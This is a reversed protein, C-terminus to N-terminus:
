YVELTEILEWPGWQTAVPSQNRTWFRARFVQNNYVVTDGNEFVRSNTWTYAHAGGIYVLEGIEMWAGWPGSNAPSQSQVWWQAEFIRGDYIVRDGNNFVTAADWVPYAPAVPEEISAENFNAIIRINASTLNQVHLHTRAATEDHLVIGGAEVTWHSFVHGEPVDAQIVVTQGIYGRFSSYNPNGIHGWGYGGVLEITIPEFNAVIRINASTLDQVHFHTRPASVNNLAVGGAEVTWGTFLYGQPVDAQIVVTQGIYGPFSAYNPNGFHGWGYGGDLEITIAEFNAAIVVAEAGMHFHTRTATANALTIDGELVTWGTFLYGRPVNAEIVVTQGEYSEFQAYNPNGIHGWGYGGEITVTPAKATPANFTPRYVPPPTSDNTRPTANIFTDFGGRPNFNGDFLLPRGDARWSGSDAFGWLTLRNIMDANELYYGMVRGWYHAQLQEMTWEHPHHGIQSAAAPQAAILDAITWSNFQADTLVPSGYGGLTIDLETISVRGTADYFLQIAWPIYQFNTRWGLIHHHSQMGIGEILLRGDYDPHNRWRENMDNVMAYIAMAKGPREENYDNYYLVSSPAYQRAFYFAYFIYDYGPLGEENNAFAGYWQADGAVAVMEGATDGIRRLHARWDPNANWNNISIYSVFAENVVDWADIHLGDAQELYGAWNEIHWRMNEKAVDRTLVEANAGTGTRTMWAPTQAHWVLAHGIMNIDNNYAWRALNVGRDFNAQNIQRFTPAIQDPKHYDEATITNFNRLFFDRTNQYGLQPFRWGSHYINGIQPIRDEFQELISPLDMDWLRPQFSVETEHAYARPVVQVDVTSHSHLFTPMGDEFDWEFAYEGTVIDRIRFNDFFTVSTSTPNVGGVGEGRGVVQLFTSTATDTDGRGQLIASNLPPQEGQGLNSWDFGHTFRTWGLPQIDTDPNYNPTVLMHRWTGHTQVMLGTGAGSRPTFIDMEIVYQGDASLYNEIGARNLGFGEHQPTDNRTVMLVYDGLISAEQEPTLLPLDVRPIQVPDPATPQEADAERYVRVDFITFSSHTTSAQNQNLRIGNLASPGDFVYTNTYVADTATAATATSMWTYGPLGNIALPVNSEVVIRDGPWFEFGRFDVGSWDASTGSVIKGDPTITHTAGANQVSISLGSDTIANGLSWYLISSTVEEEPALLPDIVNAFTGGDGGFSTELNQFDNAYVVTGDAGTIILDDVFFTGAANGVLRIHDIGTSRATFTVDISTWTEASIPTNGLWAFNNEDTQSVFRAAGTTGGDLVRAQLRYEEGGIFRYGPIQLGQWDATQTISLVHNVEQESISVPAALATSGIFPQVLLSTALLSSTFKKFISHHAM